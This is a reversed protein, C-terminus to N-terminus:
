SFYINLPTKVHSIFNERITQCKVETVMSYFFMRYTKSRLVEENSWFCSENFGLMCFSENEVEVNKIIYYYM